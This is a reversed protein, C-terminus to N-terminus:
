PSPTWLRRGFMACAPCFGAFATVILMACAALAAWLERGALAAAALLGVGLLARTTCEWGPVNRNFGM